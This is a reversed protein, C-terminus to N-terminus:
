KVHKWQKKMIVVSIASQSVKFKKALDVQRWGHLYLQRIQRIKFVTLKAYWQNEGTTSAYRGKLWRDRQNAATDGEFHHSHRICAKNDCHHCVGLIPWKGTALFWAVRHAHVSSKKYNFWVRGYGTKALKGTWLWCQGLEPRHKPIPGNKNVKEWFREKLPRTNAAVCLKLNLLQKRRAIPNSSLGM